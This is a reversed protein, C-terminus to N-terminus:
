KTISIDYLGYKDCIVLVQPIEILSIDNRYAYVETELDTVNVKFDKLEEYLKRSNVKQQFTICIRM